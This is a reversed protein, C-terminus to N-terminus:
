TILIVGKGEKNEKSLDDIKVMRSKAKHLKLKAEESFSFAAITIQKTIEGDALVKGPVLVVSNPKAIMEIRGLNVKISKRKSKALYESVKLWFPSQKRLFTIMNVLNPNSKRKLKKKLKTQSIM